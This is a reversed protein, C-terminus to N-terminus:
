RGRGVPRRTILNDDVAGTRRLRSVEPPRMSGNQTAQPPRSPARAETLPSLPVGEILASLPRFGREQTSATTWCLMVSPRDMEASARCSMTTSESSPTPTVAVAVAPRHRRRHLRQQWRQLDILKCSGGRWRLHAPREFRVCRHCRRTGRSTTSSISAVATWVIMVLARAWLTLMPPTNAARTTAAASTRGLAASIPPMSTGTLMWPRTDGGTSGSHCPTSMRSTRARRSGTPPPARGTPPPADDPPVARRAPAPLTCKQASSCRPSSSLANAGTRSGARSRKTRGKTRVSM